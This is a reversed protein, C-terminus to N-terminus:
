RRRRCCFCAKVKVMCKDWPRVARSPWWQEGVFYGGCAIAADQAWFRAKYGPVRYHDVYTGPTGPTPNKPHDGVDDRWTTAYGDVGRAWGHVQPYIHAIHHRHYLSGDAKRTYDETADQKSGVAKRTYDGKNADQKPGDAKLADDKKADQEHAKDDAKSAKVPRSAKRTKAM